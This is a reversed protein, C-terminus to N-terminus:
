QAEETGPHSIVEDQTTPIVSTQSSSVTRSTNFHKSRSQQSSEDKKTIANSLATSRYHRTLASRGFAHSGTSEKSEM